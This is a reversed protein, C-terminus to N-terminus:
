LKFIDPNNETDFERATYGNNLKLNMYTYSLELPREQGAQAPWMFADYHIPVGLENDIFIRAAHHHFNERAIPHVIQIMTTSRGIFKVDPKSTVECEAFKSDAEFTEILRTILNRMGVRTIPYKQGSMAMTGEPDLHLKGLMKRKWGAELVIMENENQGAVYVVERGKYPQLFSMYVSFPQQRIKMFIHQPDGLEGDVRERKVLTCSYDRINNDIHEGSAKLVRIVPALPHEGPQQTLDIKPGVVPAAPVAAAAPTTQVAPQAAPTENAVRFVPETPEARGAACWFTGLTFVAMVTISQFNLSRATRIM